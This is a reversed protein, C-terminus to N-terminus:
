WGLSNKEQKLLNSLIANGIEGLSNLQEQGIFSVGFEVKCAEEYLKLDKLSLSEAIEYISYFSIQVLTEKSFTYM